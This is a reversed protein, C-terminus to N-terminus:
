VYPAGEPPAADVGELPSEHLIPRMGLEFRVRAPERGRNRMVVTLWTAPYAFLEPLFIGHPALVVPIAAEALLLSNPGLKIDEVYLDEASGGEVIVYLRLLQGAETLRMGFSQSCFGDSARVVPTVDFERMQECPWLGLHAACPKGDRYLMTGSALVKPANSAKPKREALVEFLIEPMITEPRPPIFAQRQDGAEEPALAVARGEIRMHTPTCGTAYIREARYLEQPVIAFVLAAGDTAVPGPMDNYRCLQVRKAHGVKPATAAPEFATSPIRQHNM